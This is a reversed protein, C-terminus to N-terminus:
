PNPFNRMFVFAHDEFFNLKSFRGHNRHFKLEFGFRKMVAILDQNTIGWQWVNHIDRWPRKHEPHIEDLKTFLDHYLPSNRAFPILKCYEEQGLDLLRVSREAGIYQQNYILLVRCIRSYTELIEPWDPKVQHLLIDFMLVADVSRIKDVVTQTGFNNNILTLNPYKLSKKVVTPTLNTDVIFAKELLYHDLAYFTYAGNIKWVGGLDVLSKLDLQLDAFAYDILEKKGYNFRVPLGEKIFGYFGYIGKKIKRLNTVNM